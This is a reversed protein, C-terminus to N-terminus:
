KNRCVWACCNASTKGTSGEGGYGVDIKKAYYSDEEESTWYSDAILGSFGHENLWTYPTPFFQGYQWKIETMVKLEATTPLRWDTYNALTLNSAYDLANQWTKPESKPAKEWMLGTNNDTLTGNGNDTFRNAIAPDENLAVTCVVIPASYMYGVEGTSVVQEWINYDSNWKTETQGGPVEYSYGVCYAIYFKTGPKATLLYSQLDFKIHEWKIACTNWTNTEADLVTTKESLPSAWKPEDTIKVPWPYKETVQNVGANDHSCWIRYSYFDETWYKLNQPKETKLKKVYTAVTTGKPMVARLDLTASEGTVINYVGNKFDFLSADYSTFQPLGKGSALLVGNPYNAGYAPDQQANAMQCSGIIILIALLKKM